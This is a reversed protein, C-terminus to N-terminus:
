DDSAKRDRSRGPYFEWLGTILHLVILLSGAVIVAWIAESM